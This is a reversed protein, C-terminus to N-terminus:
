TRTLLEALELALPQPMAVCPVTVPMLSSSKVDVTTVRDRQYDTKQLDLTHVTSLSPREQRSRAATSARATYRLHM